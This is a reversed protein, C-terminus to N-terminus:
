PKVLGRHHSTKQKVRAWACVLVQLVVHTLTPVDQTHGVPQRGVGARGFVHQLMDECLDHLELLEVLDAM